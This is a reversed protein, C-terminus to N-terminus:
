SGMRRTLYTAVSAPNISKGDPMKSLRSVDFSLEDETRGIGDIDKLAEVIEDKSLGSLTQYQPKATRNLAVQGRIDSIEDEWFRCGGRSFTSVYVRSLNGVLQAFGRAYPAAVADTQDCFADVPDFLLAVSAIGGVRDARMGANLDEAMLLPLDARFRSQKVRESEMILAKLRPSSKITRDRSAKVRMGKGYHMALVVTLLGGAGALAGGYAAMMAGVAISVLAGQTTAAGSLAASLTPLHKALEKFTDKSANELAKKFMEEPDVPGVKWIGPAFERPRCLAIYLSFAMEFRPCELNPAVRGLRRRLRAMEVFFDTEDLQELDLMVGPIRGEAEFLVNELHKALTTKGVGQPGSFNVYQRCRPKAAEAECAKLCVDLFLTKEADRGIFPIEAM